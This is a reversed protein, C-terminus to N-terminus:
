EFPRGEKPRCYIMTIKQNAAKAAPIARECFYKSPYIVPTQEQCSGGWVVTVCIVLEWLM